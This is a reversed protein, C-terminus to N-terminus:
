TSANKTKKCTIFEFGDIVTSYHIWTVGDDARNIKKSINTFRMSQFTAFKLHVIFSDLSKKRVSLIGIKKARKEIEEQLDRLYSHSDYLYINLQFVEKMKQEM